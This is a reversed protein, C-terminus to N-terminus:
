AEAILAEVDFEDDLAGAVHGDADRPWEEMPRDWALELDNGDPDTIYIALHTGHDAIQRFPWDV